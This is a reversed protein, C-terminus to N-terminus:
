TSGAGVASSVGFRRLLDHALFGFKYIYNLNGDVEVECSLISALIDQDRSFLFRRLAASDKFTIAVDYTPFAERLVKMRGHAFHAGAAVKGDATRFLYAGSFGAINRRYGRLLLFAFEMAGLLIELFKDMLFGELARVLAAVRGQYLRLVLREPLLRSLLALLFRRWRTM